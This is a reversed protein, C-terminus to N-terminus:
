QMIFAVETMLAASPVDDILTSKVEVAKREEILEGQRQMLM